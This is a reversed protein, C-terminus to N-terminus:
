EAPLDIPLGDLGPLTGLSELTDNDLGPLEAALNQTIQRVLEPSAGSLVGQVDVPDLGSLASALAEASLNVGDIGPVGNTLSTEKFSDDELLSSILAGNAPVENLAGATPPPAPQLGPILIDTGPLVVQPM